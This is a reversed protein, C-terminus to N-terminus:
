KAMYMYGNLFPLYKSDLWHCLRSKILIDTCHILGFSIIALFCLDKRGSGRLLLNCDTSEGHCGWGCLGPRHGSAARLPWRHTRLPHCTVKSRRPKAHEWRWPKSCWQPTPTRWYPSPRAGASERWILATWTWSSTVQSWYLPHYFIRCTNGPDRGVEVFLHTLDM